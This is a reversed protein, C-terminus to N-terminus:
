VVNNGGDLLCNVFAIFHIILENDLHKSNESLVTLVM